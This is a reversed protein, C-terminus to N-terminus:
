ESIGEAAGARNRPVAFYQFYGRVVRKFRVVAALGGDEVCAQTRFRM